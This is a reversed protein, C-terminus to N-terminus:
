PVNSVRTCKRRNVLYSGVDVLEVVNMDHFQKLEKVVPDAGAKGFVQGKKLSFQEVKAQSADHENRTSGMVTTPNNSAYPNTDTWTSNNHNM